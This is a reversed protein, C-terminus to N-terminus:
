LLDYSSDIHYSFRHMSLAELLVIVRRSGSSAFVIGVELGSSNKKFLFALCCVFCFVFFTLLIGVGCFKLVSFNILHEGVRSAIGWLNRHGLTLPPGQFM